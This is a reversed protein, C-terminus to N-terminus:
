SALITGSFRFENKPIPKKPWKRFPKPSFRQEYLVKPFPNLLLKRPIVVNKM